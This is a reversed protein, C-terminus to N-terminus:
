PGQLQKFAQVVPLVEIGSQHILKLQAALVDSTITSRDAAITSTQTGTSEPTAIQHYVLILWGNMRSTEALANSLTEPTTEDTVYLVKLDHPDLNQRTNLGDDTGRMIDFYKSAYWDVQPDSRGFPPALDSTGLGAAALAEESRRL